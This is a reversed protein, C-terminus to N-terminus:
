DAAAKQMSISARTDLVKTRNERKREERATTVAKAAETLEVTTKEAAADEAEQLGKQILALREQDLQKKAITAEEEKKAATAEEEALLATFEIEQKEMKETIFKNVIKLKEVADAITKKDEERNNTIVTKLIVKFANIDIESENQRIMRYLEVLDESEKARKDLMVSEAEFRRLEAAEAERHWQDEADMDAQIGDLDIGSNKLSQETIRRITESLNTHKAITQKAVRVVDEPTSRSDDIVAMFPKLAADKAAKKEATEAKKRDKHSVGGGRLQNTNKNYKRM